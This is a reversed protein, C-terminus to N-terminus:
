QGSGLSCRDIAAQLRTALTDYDFRDVARRRAALGMRAREPGDDVLRRLAADVAAVNEPADM